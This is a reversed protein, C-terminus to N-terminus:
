MWWPLINSQESVGLTEFDLQYCHFSDPIMGGAASVLNILIKLGNNIKHKCMYKVYDVNSGHIELKNWAIRVLSWKLGFCWKMLLCEPIDYGDWAALKYTNRTRLLHNWRSYYLATANWDHKLGTLIYALFIKKTPLVGKKLNPFLYDIYLIFSDLLKLSTLRQASRKKSLIHM